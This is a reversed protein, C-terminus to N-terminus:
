SNKELQGLVTQFDKPYPCKIEQIEGKLSTFKLSYAHLAVRAMIPREDSDQKPKYKSKISSLYLQNGGYAEDAVLPASVSAMHVRIQHM